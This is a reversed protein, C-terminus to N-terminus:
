QSVRPDWSDREEQLALEYEEWTRFCRPGPPLTRILDALPVRPPDPPTRAGQLGETILEALRRQEEEPLLLVSERYIEEVTPM